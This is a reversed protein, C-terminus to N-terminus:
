EEWKNGIPYTLTLRDLLGALMQMIPYFLTTPKLLGSRVMMAGLEQNGSIRMGLKVCEECAISDRLELKSFSWVLFKHLVPPDIHYREELSQIAAVYNTVVTERDHNRCYLESLSRLFLLGPHDPTSELVRSVQGRIAAADKDSRIGGALEGTETEYGDILKTITELGLDDSDLISDIVPSFSTEFYRLVRERILAEEDSKGAAERALQYMEWLARRRGKEVTDYIFSVLIRCMALVFKQYDGTDLKAAKLSEGHVRNVNYGSVYALYNQVIEDSGIGSIQVGFENSSYNLTYDAVVGLIVLRHLAKEMFKKESDEVAMYRHVSAPIGSIKLKQMVVAVHKLEENIGYFANSHFFM